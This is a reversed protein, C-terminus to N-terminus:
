LKVVKRVFPAGEEPAVRIFYTGAPYQDLSFSFKNTGAKVKTNMILDLYAGAGNLLELKVRESKNMTFEVSLETYVPNPYVTSLSEVTKREEVSSISPHVLVSIWPEPDLGSGGYTGNLWMVGEYTPDQHIGFYDGWRDTGVLAHIPEEGEKIIVFDSYGGKGDYYIAGYGAFITDNSYNVGILVEPDQHEVSFYELGPYGLDFLETTIYDGSFVPTGNVDEIFGHYVGPKGNSPVYTNGVFQIQDGIQIADLWRADNTALDDDHNQQANPPFGYPNELTYVGSTMEATPDNLDGTIHFLWISDNTEDFNRNSLLFLDSRTGMDEDKVLCLNRVKKDDHQATPWYRTTLEEGNFGNDLDIQWVISGEFGTEWPEGDRILNLSVFIEDKKLAVIPYDSWVNLNDADGPLAYHHWAGLPDNTDSFGLMLYTGASTSGALYVVVFRDRSPVYVVRPDFKREEIGLNDSFGQLSKYYLRDGEVDFVSLNSNIVSVVTQQKNVAIGNDNPVGSVGPNGQFSANIWPSAANGLVVDKFGGGQHKRRKANVKEKLVDRPDVLYSGGPKPAEIRKLNPHYDVVEDTLQNTGLLPFSMTRPSQAFGASALVFSVVALGFHKKM